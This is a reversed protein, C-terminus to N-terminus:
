DKNLVLYKRDAKKSSEKEDIIIEGSFGAEQFQRSAEKLEGETEPYFQIVASGGDKLVRYIEDAAKRYEQRIEALNTAKIWQLTSVSIISGFSCDQFPIDRFDAEVLEKQGKQWSIELMPRSIDLGVSDFGKEELVDLSFGCGCGIDLINTGKKGLLDICRETMQRQIEEIRSSNSYDEAREKDWYESPLFGRKDPM